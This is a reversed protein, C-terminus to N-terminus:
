LAWAPRAVWKESSWKSSACERGLRRPRMDRTASTIVRRSDYESKRSEIANANSPKPRVMIQQDLLSTRWSPMFPSTLSLMIDHDVGHSLRGQMISASWIGVGCTISLRMRTSKMGRVDDCCAACVSLPLKRPM